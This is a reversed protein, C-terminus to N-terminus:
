SFLLSDAYGTQLQTHHCHHLPWDLLRADWFTGDNTQVAGIEGRREKQKKERDKDKRSSVGGISHVVPRCVAGGGKGGISLRSVQRWKGDAQRKGGDECEFLRQGPSSEQQQKSTIVLHHLTNPKILPRASPCRDKDPDKDVLVVASPRRRRPGGSHPFARISM